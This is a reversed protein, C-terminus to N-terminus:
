ECEDFIVGVHYVPIIFSFFCVFLHVFVVFVLSFSAPCFNKCCRQLMYKKGMALFFRTGVQSGGFTVQLGTIYVFM